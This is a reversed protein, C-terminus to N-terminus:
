QRSTRARRKGVSRRVAREVAALAGDIAADQSADRKEVVVSPRGSLVVKVRCVHDVGGRPGNVDEVRVSVREIASAFKGLKMGLKRRIYQRDEDDLETGLVRIHAPTARPQGGSELKSKKSIVAAFPSREASDPKRQRARATRTRGRRLEDLVDTATVIGVLREDDIVPLSGIHRASMLDAAERLTMDPDATAPQRTMLEEVVHGRRVDCGEPGGLDRDSLIGVIRDDRTVVLHHIRRRRMRSWAARAQARSDISVVPTVMIQELRM